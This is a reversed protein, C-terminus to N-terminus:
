LTTMLMLIGVVLLVGAFVVAATIGDSGIDGRHIEKIRYNGFINTKTEDYTITKTAGKKVVYWLWTFGILWVLLAGGVHVFIDVMDAGMYNWIVLVMTWKGVDTKVFDNVAVGIEKAAGGMMKGVKEGLDVWKDVKEVTSTPNAAAAQAATMQKIMEAQQEAPLNNFITQVDASVKPQGSANADGCCGALAVVAALAVLIRKM